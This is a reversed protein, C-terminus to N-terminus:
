TAGKIQIPLVARVSGRKKRSRKADALQKFISPHDFALPFGGRFAVNTAKVIASVKVRKRRLPELIVRFARGRLKRVIEPSLMIEVKVGRPADIEM